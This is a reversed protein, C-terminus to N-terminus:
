NRNKKSEQRLKVLRAMGEDTEPMVGKSSNSLLEEDSDRKPAQGGGGTNTADAVNRAEAKDELITKVISAKLAETISIGKLKAYDKVEEIDEQPVKAEILSFMDSSSLDKEDVVEKKEEKVEEKKEEPKESAKKKWHAKQATLTKIAKDKDETTADEELTVEEDLDIIDVETNKVEEPSKNTETM